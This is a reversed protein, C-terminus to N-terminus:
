SNDQPSGSLKTHFGSKTLVISRSAEIPVDSPANDSDQWIIVVDSSDPGYDMEGADCPTDTASIRRLLPSRDFVQGWVPNYYVVYIARKEQELAYEINKLFRETLDQGFPNYLYLVLDGSPLNQIDLADGTIVTIPAREPHEQAVIHANREAIM